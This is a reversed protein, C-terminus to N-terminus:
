VTPGYDIQRREYESERRDGEDKMIFCAHRIWLVFCWACIVKSCMSAEKRDCM